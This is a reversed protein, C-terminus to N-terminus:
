GNYIGLIPQIITIFKTIYTTVLQIALKFLRSFYRIFQFMSCCFIYKWASLYIWNKIQYRGKVNNTNM